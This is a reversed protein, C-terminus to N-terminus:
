EQTKLFTDFYLVVTVTFTVVTPPIDKHFSPCLDFRTWSYVKKKKKKKCQRGEISLTVKDM